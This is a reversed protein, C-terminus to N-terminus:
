EVVVRRTVTGTAYTVRLVYTGVPLATTALTLEPQRATQTLVPRGLVDLLQVQQPRAAADLTIHLDGHTPVPWVLTTAALHTAATHLVHPDLLRILGTRAQNGVHTFAGSVLIAGNPQVLLTRVAGDRPGQTFDFDPDPQGDPLLRQLGYETGTGVLIRGNPQEAVATVEPSFGTTILTAQFSPDPSGTALLRAVGSSTVAGAGGFYGFLLQRGAADRSLGNAFALPRSPLAPFLASSSFAPDPAGSALRRTVVGVPSGNAGNLLLASGDPQAVLQDQISFSTGIALQYAADHGGTATLRVAGEITYTGSPELIGTLLVKGDPQLTMGRVFGLSLAPSFTADLCGTPLLRAVDVTSGTSLSLGSVLIKGDPQLAVLPEYLPSITAYQGLATFTGCGAGFGADLAGTPLLRAIGIAAVGNVETFLGAIIIKGDGQLAMSSLHGTKQLAPTFGPVYAGNTGLLAVSTAPTGTSFLQPSDASVLVQGSPLVQVSAANQVLPSAHSVQWTPDHAGTPTLRIILREETGGPAATWWGSVLIGGAAQVQIAPGIMSSANIIVSQDRQFTADLTGTAPLLRVLRANTGSSIEYACLLAGDTPQVTLSRCGAGAPLTPQYSTDLAGSPLLRALGARPQGQVTTFSGGVLLKGDAQRALTSVFGGVRGQFQSGYQQFFAIDFSGDALLHMLGTRVGVLLSGDPQVLLAGTDALPTPPSAFTSDRRGNPLLRVLSACLQGSVRATDGFLVILKNGPAERLAFIQWTNAQTQASFVADPQGNPLYRALGNCAQGDARIFQGAVVRSGDSLQLAGRVIAPRYLTLPQFGPDLLPGGQAWGSGSGLLLLM